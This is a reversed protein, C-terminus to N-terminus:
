EQSAFRALLLKYTGKVIAFVSGEQIIVKIDENYSSIAERITNAYNFGTGGAIIVTAADGLKYDCILSQVFKTAYEDLTEQFCKKIEAGSIRCQKGYLDGQQKETDFSFPINKEIKEAIQNFHIPKFREMDVDYQSKAMNNIKEATKKHVEIMAFETNSIPNHITLSKDKLVTAIGITRYGGDVIVAPLKNIIDSESDYTGNEDVIQNIFSAIVQATTGIKNIPLELTVSVPSQDIVMDIETRRSLGGKLASIVTEEETSIYPLALAVTVDWKDLDKIDFGIKNDKSYLTLAYVIAARYLFISTEETFFTDLNKLKKLDTYAEGSEQMIKRQAFEGILYKDIASNKIRETYEIYGDSSGQKIFNRDLVTIYSPFIYNNGNIEIKVNDFGVDIALLIAKKQKLKTEINSM